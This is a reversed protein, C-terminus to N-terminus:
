RLKDICNWKLICGLSGKIRSRESRPLEEKEELLKLNDFMIRPDFFGSELSLLAHYYYNYNNNVFGPYYKAVM